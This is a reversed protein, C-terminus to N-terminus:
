RFARRIGNPVFEPNQRVLRNFEDDLIYTEGFDDEARVIRGCMQWLEQAAKYAYWKPRSAKRLQVVQDGLNPWPVKLIVQVRASDYRFDEGSAISPSVLWKGTQSRFAALVSAKDTRDHTMLLNKHRSHQAVLNGLRYSGSHVVGSHGMHNDIIDDLAAALLPAVTQESKATVSAVTRIYIPRNNPDFVYPLKIHDINAPDLGIIGAFMPLDLVTASMIVLRNAVARHPGGSLQYGTSLPKTAADAWVQEIRYGYTTKTVVKQSLSWGALYDSLKRYLRRISREAPSYFEERGVVHRQLAAKLPLVWEGEWKAPDAPDSPMGIKWRNAIALDGQYIDLSTFSTLESDLYHGEDAVMWDYGRFMGVFNSERLQYAYNHISIPAKLAADRAQFYPCQNAEQAPCKSLGLRCPADAATTHETVGLQAALDENFDPLVCPYNARGKITKALGNAERMYQDQLSMTATDIMARGGTLRPIALAIGTKGTGTPADIVIINYKSQQVRELAYEQYPRWEDNWGYNLGLESPRPLTM